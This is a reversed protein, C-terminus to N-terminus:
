QYQSYCFRQHRLKFHLDQIQSTFPCLVINAMNNKNESNSNIMPDLCTSNKDEKMYKSITYMFCVTIINWPLFYSMNFGETPNFKLHDISSANSCVLIADWKWYPSKKLTKDRKQMSKIWHSNNLYAFELTILLYAAKAFNFKLDTQSTCFNLCVYHHTM